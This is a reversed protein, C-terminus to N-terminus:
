KRKAYKQRADVLKEYRDQLQKSKPGKWYESDHDGMLKEISALENSIVVDPNEGSSPVVTSVPNVERALSALWRMIQVSHAIPTGDALRGGFLEDKVGAPATELLGNILNSNLRYEQGWEARLEEEAVQRNADEREIRAEEAAQQQEFIKGFLQKAAAPPINAEHVASLFDTTFKKGDDTLELEAPIEIEYGEPTAPIGNQERWEALQEPTAKEPLPASKITGSAIKNQAAVLADLASEISSYRSLRKAIKEDKKAFAERITAWDRPQSTPEADDAVAAPQADVQAADAPAADSKPATDIISAAAPKTDVPAASTEPQTTNEPAATSAQAFQEAVSAM